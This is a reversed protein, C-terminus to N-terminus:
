ALPALLKAFAEEFQQLGDQQLRVALTEVDIGLTAVEELVALAADSQESLTSHATGHEIFAKLTAEPVTNVTERGILSDVYLTAPYAPDKVGTSAWLLQARNAGQELLGSFDGGDFFRQWDLYAAKALAIATKGRLHEPLVADLASDIRSIFFSAVVHIDAVAGGAALRARIGRVYAEYAKLTQQRSFLLTLNVSIGDAVLGELAKLGEDTAPVKIMANKRGIARHLRRAEAVTAEADHALEPSVELSVFGSRGGDAEYTPLCVDCAAQVDDVALTEYRQKPSLDQRKLDAVDAAYLPDGAFAKQFIAPNSTVGCVGKALWEALGGGQVLSRSLNDLWIQQGLAKVDSLITM